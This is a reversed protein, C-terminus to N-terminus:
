FCAGIAVLLRSMDSDLKKRYFIGRLIWARNYLAAVWRLTISFFTSHIQLFNQRAYASVDKVDRHSSLSSFSKKEMMLISHVRCSHFFISTRKEEGTKWGCVNEHGANVELCSFHHCKKPAAWMEHWQVPIISSIINNRKHLIDTYKVCIWFDLYIIWM